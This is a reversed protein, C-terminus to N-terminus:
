EDGYYHYYSSSKDVKTKNLIVGLINSGAKEMLAKAKKVENKDNKKVIM